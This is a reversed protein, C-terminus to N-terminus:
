RYPADPAVVTTDIIAFSEMKSPLDELAKPDKVYWEVWGCGVCAYAELVGFVRSRWISPKALAMENAGSGEGRDLVTPAHLFRRGGCSPCCGQQRLTPPSARRGLESRLRGLEQEMAHIRAAIRDDESM